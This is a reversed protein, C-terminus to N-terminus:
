KAPLVISFSPHCSLVICYERMLDVSVCIFFESKLYDVVRFVEQLPCQVKQVKKGEKEGDRWKIKRTTKIEDVVYKSNQM